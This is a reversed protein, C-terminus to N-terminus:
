LMKMIFDSNSKCQSEKFVELHHVYQWAVEGSLCNWFSRVFTILEFKRLQQHMVAHFNTM